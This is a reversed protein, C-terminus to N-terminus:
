PRSICSSPRRGPSSRRSTLEDPATNLESAPSDPLMEVETARRGPESRAVSLASASTRWNAGASWLASSDSRSGTRSSGAVLAASVGNKLAVVGTRRSSIRGNTRAAPGNM